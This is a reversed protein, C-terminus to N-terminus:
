RPISALYLHERTRRGGQKLQRPEAAQTPRPGARLLKIPRLTSTASPVRRRLGDKRRPLDALSHAVDLAESNTLAPISGAVGRNEAGHPGAWERYARCGRRREREQDGTHAGGARSTGSPGRRRAPQRPSRPRLQGKALGPRRQVARGNESAGRCYSQKPCRGTQLPRFRARPPNQVQFPGRAPLQRTRALLDCRRRARFGASTCGSRLFPSARFRVPSVVIDTLRSRPTSAGCVAYAHTKRPARKRHRVRQKANIRAPKPSWPGSSDLVRPVPTHVSSRLNSWGACAPLAPFARSTHLRTSTIRSGSEPRRV